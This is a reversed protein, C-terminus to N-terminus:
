SVDLHFHWTFFQIYLDPIYLDPIYMDSFVAINNHNTLMQIDTLAHFHILCKVM